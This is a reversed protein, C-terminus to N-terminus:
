TNPTHTAPNKYYEVLMESCVIERETREALEPSMRYTVGDLAKQWLWLSGPTQCTHKWGRATLLKGRQEDLNDRMEDLWEMKANAWDASGPAPAASLAAQDKRARENDTVCNIKHGPYKCGCEVCVEAASGLAPACRGKDQETVVNTTTPPKIEENM